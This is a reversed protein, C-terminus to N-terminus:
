QGEMAFAYPTMSIFNIATGVRKNFNYQSLGNMVVAANAEDTPRAVGKKKTIDNSSYVVEPNASDVTYGFDREHALIAQVQARAIADFNQGGDGIFRNWLWTAVEGVVHEGDGNVPIVSAWDKEWTYVPAPTTETGAELTYDDSTDDFFTPNDINAWFADKFIYRNNAAQLGTQGGFVDHAPHFVEAGQVEMRQYPSDNHHKAFNEENTLIQANQLVLNRDFATRYKFTSSDHFATSAAYARMFALIDYGADAWGGRIQAIKSDDLNDDAFFDIMYVPVNDMSEVHAAAVPALAAIKEAATGGCVSAHLIELCSAAGDASHYHYHTNRIWRPTPNLDYHDSFDIPSVYWDGSNTSGYANEVKDLNMGSLMWATHEITTDEHYTEDETTGHIRFFLQHFERGFDDTGSFRESSNYYRSYQHGYARAVAAHSAAVTMVDVFDGGAILEAIIDDYYSRILGARTKHVSISAHYNTLYLGVKHLFPNCGRTSVLKTWTRVLNSSSLSPTSSSSLTAYRYRDTYKMVNGPDDGSWFDQMAALSHCYLDSDDGAEDPSVLDNNPNFTLIEAVAADSSMNAWAEVQADTALGGFAFANLVRRVHLEDWNRNSVSSLSDGGGKGGGGGGNGGGKGPPPAATATITMTLLFITCALSFPRNFYTIM